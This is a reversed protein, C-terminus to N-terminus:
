EQPVGAARSHVRVLADRQQPQSRQGVVDFAAVGLRDRAVGVEGVGDEFQACTREKGVWVGSVGGQRVYAGECPDHTSRVSFLDGGPLWSRGSRLSWAIATRSRASASLVRAAKVADVAWGRGGPGLRPPPPLPPSGVLAADRAGGAVPARGAADRGIAGACDLAGAGAGAGAGDGLWAARTGGTRAPSRLTDSIATSLAEDTM